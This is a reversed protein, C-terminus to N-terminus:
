YELIMTMSFQVKRMNQTQTPEWSQIIPHPYKHGHPSIYYTPDVRQYAGHLNMNMRGELYASIIDAYSMNGANTYGTNYQNNLTPTIIWGQITVQLPDPAGYFMGETRLDFGSNPDITGVTVIETIKPKRTPIPHEKIFLPVDFAPRAQLVGGDYANFGDWHLVGRYDALQQEIDLRM